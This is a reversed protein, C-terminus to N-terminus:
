RIVEVRYDDDHLMRSTSLSSIYHLTTLTDYFLNCSVVAFNNPEGKGGIM